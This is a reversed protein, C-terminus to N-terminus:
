EATKSQLYGFTKALGRLERYLEPDLKQIDKYSLQLRGRNITNIQGHKSPKVMTMNEEKCGKRVLEVSEPYATGERDFFGGLEAVRCATTNEVQYWDDVYRMVRRNYEVWYKSFIHVCGKLTRWKVQPFFAEFVVLLDLGPRSSQSKWQEAKCYKAVNSAINRLPHRVQLLSFRFGTTCEKGEGKCGYNKEMFRRCEARWCPGWYEAQSCNGEFLLPHFVNFRPNSSGCLLGVNAGVDGEQFAYLGHVWSVTGDRCFEMESNSTEHAMELGLGELSRSMQTTGSGQMGYVLLQREEYVEMAPRYWGSRLNIWRRINYLRVGAVVLGGSLGIALAIYFVNRLFILLDVLFTASMSECQSRITADSPILHAGAYNEIRNLLSTPQPKTVTPAPATDSPQGPKRGRAARRKLGNAASRGM